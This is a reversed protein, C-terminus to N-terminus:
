KRAGASRKKKKPPEGAFANRHMVQMHTVEGSKDDLSFTRDGILFVGDVGEHPIVIRVQKNIAWLGGAHRWGSVVVSIAHARALRRNRSTMCSIRSPPYSLSGMTLAIRCSFSFIQLNTSLPCVIGVEVGTGSTGNVGRGPDTVAM